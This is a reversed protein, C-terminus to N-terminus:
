IHKITLKVFLLRSFSIDVIPLSSYRIVNWYVSLSSNIRQIQCTPKNYGYNLYLAFYWRFQYDRVFINRRYRHYAPAVAGCGVAFAIALGAHYILRYQNPCTQNHNYQM